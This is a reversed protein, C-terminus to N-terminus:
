GKSPPIDRDRDQRTQIWVGGLHILRAVHDVKWEYRSRCRRQKEIETLGLNLFFVLLGKKELVSEGAAM